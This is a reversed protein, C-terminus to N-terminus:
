WKGTSENKTARVIEGSFVEGSAFSLSVVKAPSTITIVDDLDGITAADLNISESTQYLKGSDSFNWNNEDDSAAFIPSSGGLMLGIALIGALLKKM